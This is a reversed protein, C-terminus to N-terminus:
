VIDQYYSAVEQCVEVKEQQCHIDELRKESISLKEIVSKVYFNINQLLNHGKEIPQIVPAISLTDAIVMQKRPICSITFDYCIM